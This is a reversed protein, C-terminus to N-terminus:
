ILNSLPKSILHIPSQSSRGFANLFITKPLLSLSDIGVLNIDLDALIDSGTEQGLDDVNHIADDPISTDRSGTPQALPFPFSDGSSSPLHDLIDSADLAIDFDETTNDSQSEITSISSGQGDSDIILHCGMGELVHHKNTEEVESECDDDRLEQLMSNEVDDMLSTVIQRERTAPSPIISESNAEKGHLSSSPTEAPSALSPPAFRMM